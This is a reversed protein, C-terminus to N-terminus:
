SLDDHGVQFTGLDLILLNSKEHHFGTQPILLYSPKLNIRLDLVKRTEIIHMLGLVPFLISSLHAGEGEGAPVSNQKFYVVVGLPQLTM